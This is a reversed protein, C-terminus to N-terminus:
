LRMKMRRSFVSSRRVLPMAFGLRFLDRVEIYGAPYHLGM